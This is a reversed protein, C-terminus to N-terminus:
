AGARPLVVVRGREVTLALRGAALDLAQAGFLDRRWGELAPIDARDGSAIRELDGTSAILRQAVGTEESCQKLLIKLLETAPADGTPRERRRAPAPCADDPVALGRAIAELMGKGLAGQALKRNVSRLGALQERTTPREAAAETLGKDSLVWGRPLNRRDAETERWAALERLVALFRPSGSRVKIRRWMERPDIRYTAPDTLVDHEEDLWARRGSRALEAELKEYVTRLHTVDSLAYRLQREGLPRRSWDTFRMTKDIRAGALKAALTEYSASDGFGCVMAAIQTDFLPKPVGGALPLLAEVDQRAAHFVKLIPARALLDYFPALDLGKALTDVAAAEGQPVAVQVLCLKARYTDERMFETDVALFGADAWDRCRAALTASETILIPRTM